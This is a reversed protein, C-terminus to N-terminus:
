YYGLSGSDKVKKQTYNFALIGLLMLIVGSILLIYVERKVDSITAGSSIIARLANISHTLPIFESIHRMWNPLVALPYTIGCFITMIGRVLFVMSNAEKAWMVLSAFIFGIGYVVPISITIILLALLPSGVFKFNYFFKFEIISTVIFIMSTMLQFLSYGLLLSIKPIPCLWNSELTGRMQEVRLSTGFNWLMTNIWMWITTGILMYTTYDATGAVSKFAALSNSGTGSLAKATFLYGFPLIVPWILRPIFWSPYRLMIRMEKKFVAFAAKFLSPDNDKVHIKPKIITEM